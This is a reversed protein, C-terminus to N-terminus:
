GLMQNPYSFFFFLPFHLLEQLVKDVDDGLISFGVSSAVEELALRFLVLSRGRWYDVRMTYRLALRPKHKYMVVGSDEV